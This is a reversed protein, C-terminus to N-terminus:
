CAKTPLWTKMPGLQIVLITALADIDSSLAVRV